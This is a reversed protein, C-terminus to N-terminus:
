RHIRDILMPFQSWQKQIGLLERSVRYKGWLSKDAEETIVRAGLATRLNRQGFLGESAVIRGAGRTILFGASGMARNLLGKGLAGAVGTAAGGLVM